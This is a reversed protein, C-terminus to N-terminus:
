RKVLLGVKFPYFAASSLITINGCSRHRGVLSTASNRYTCTCTYICLLYLYLYLHLLIIDNFSMIGIELRALHCEEKLTETLLAPGLSNWGRGTYRCNNNFGTYRCNNWDIRFKSGTCQLTGRSKNWQIRIKFFQVGRNRGSWSVVCSDTRRRFSCTGM